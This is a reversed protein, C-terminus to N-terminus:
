EAGGEMPHLSGVKVLGNAGQPVDIVYKVPGAEGAMELIWRGPSLGEAGFRGEANTFVAVPTGAGGEPRATGTLLSLPEDDAMVLTGYVSVSNESGVEFVYGAKYPAYTDFAGSGLSYGLPLNDVDVSTSNPLYAPIDTVLANGWADAKASPSDTSGVTIESGALSEHPAVVAFAGGRVPAGVAFKDGAFALATSVRLSTLQRTTNLSMSTVDLDDVDAYHSLRVDARNGYYGASASVSGTKDYGRAQVDLSTDWHGIGSGESRYASLSAQQGLTDYSSTITTNEGPRVSLRLAVRFEPDVDQRQDPDRPYLENSYGVVLSANANDAIPSSLTVDAGYRDGIVRFASTSERDDNDFQYRGSLTAMVDQYVPVSYSANLRLWYEQEPFIIGNADALYEGPTQFDTSRYEASAYFSEQRTGTLGGFNLLSWDLDVAAGAGPTGASAAAHSGFVGWPTGIDFGTGGMVVDADGQLDIQGTLDDSFGYRFFGSGMYDGAAYTRQNDLLYSPVGAAIAWESKGAALLGPDSYSNFALTRREGNDDQIVLEIDNAGTTLPLDRLNYNGPPLQLQQVPAGNVRVEVTANRQLRFSGNGTSDISEGPNLKRPSKEISVGLLDTSRQIPVALADTDGVLVRVEEEPVDYIVRSNQRKLGGVHGYTCIAGQPCIEGITDGDVAVRNELVAGRFRIASDLELRPSPQAEYLSGRPAGNDWLQDLGAIVNVYGSVAEPQVLAASAGQKRLGGLSLDGTPRQEPSLALKLEQLGSDFTIGVGAGAFLEIPIYGSQDPLEKIARLVLEEAIASVCEILTAKEVLVSDDATIQLLVDGLAQNQDKLPVPFTLTRGTPNLKGSVEQAYEIPAETEEAAALVRPFFVMPLWLILTLRFAALLLPSTRRQGSLGTCRLGFLM